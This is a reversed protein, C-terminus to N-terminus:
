IFIWMLNWEQMKSPKFACEYASLKEKDKYSPIFFISLFMLVSTIFVIFLLSQLIHKFELIEFRVLWKTKMFLNIYCIILLFYFFFLCSFFRSYTYYPDEIPKGGLYTLWFFCVFLFCPLLVYIKDYVISKILPKFFFPIFFLM